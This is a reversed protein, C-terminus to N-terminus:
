RRSHCDHSASNREEILLTEPHLLYRFTAYKSEAVDPAVNAIEEASLGPSSHTTLFTAM